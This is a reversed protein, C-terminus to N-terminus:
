RSKKGQNTQQKKEIYLGQTYTIILDQIKDRQSDLSMERGRSRRKNHNGVANERGGQRVGTEWGGGLILSHVEKLNLLFTRAM